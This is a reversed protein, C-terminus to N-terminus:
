KADGFEKLVTAVRLKPVNLIQSIGNNSLGSKNYDTIRKRIFNPIPAYKVKANAMSDYIECPSVCLEKSLAFMFDDCFFHAKEINIEVRQREVTDSNDSGDGRLACALCTKTTLSAGCKPCHRYLRKNHRMYRHDYISDTENHEGETYVNNQGIFRRATDYAVGVTDAIERVTKGNGWWNADIINFHKKM